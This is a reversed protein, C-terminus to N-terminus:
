HGVKCRLQVKTRLPWGSHPVWSRREFDLEDLPTCWGGWVMTTGGALRFRSEDLKFDGRTNEGRNFDQIRQEFERGGSELVIASWRSGIFERAIAIGAAGGGIICIDAQQDNAVASERFDLLM